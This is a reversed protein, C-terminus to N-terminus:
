SAEEAYEPFLDGVPVGLANAIRWASVARPRARGAELRVITDTAVGAERALRAQSWGRRARALRLRQNKASGAPVRHHDCIRPVADLRWPQCIEPPHPIKAPTMTTAAGRM